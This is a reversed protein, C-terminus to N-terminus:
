KGLEPIIFAFFICWTWAVREKTAIKAVYEKSRELEYNCYEVTRGLKLQSVM